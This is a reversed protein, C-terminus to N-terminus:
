KHVWPSTVAGIIQTARAVRARSHKEKTWAGQLIFSLVITANFEGVIILIRCKNVTHSVNM